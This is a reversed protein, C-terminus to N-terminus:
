RRGDLARRQFQRVGVDLVRDHGWEMVPRAFRSMNRLLPTCPELAWTLRAQCRDPALAAVELRAPGALDGRVTTEVLKAEVVRQVVIDFRLTYPLPARVECRAEVGEHLGSGEFRGLWSWWSTYQDTRGITEWFREASVDFTFARDSAFLTPM